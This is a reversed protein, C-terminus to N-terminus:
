RIKTKKEYTLIIEEFEAVKNFFINALHPKISQVVYLGHGEVLETDYLEGPTLSHEYHEKFWEEAFREAVRRINIETYKKQM